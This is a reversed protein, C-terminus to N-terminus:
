AAAVYAKCPFELPALNTIRIVNGSGPSNFVVYLSNLLGNNTFVEYKQKPNNPGNLIEVQAKLQRTETYLLVQVQDVTPDFNVSHVAGGEIYRGEGMDILRDRIGTYPPKAYCAAANLPFDQPGQNTVDIAAPKNRTGIITQVPRVIGDESYAKVRMPTWDPGIWLDIEADIPRGNSDAMVQVFEQNVDPFEWHERSLGEIRKPRSISAINWTSTDSGGTPLYEPTSQLASAGRSSKPAATSFAAASGLSALAFLASIKM